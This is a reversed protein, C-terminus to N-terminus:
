TEAMQGEEMIKQVEAEAYALIESPDKDNDQGREVIVWPYGEFIPRKSRKCARAVARKHRAKRYSKRDLVFFWKHGARIERYDVLLKVKRM